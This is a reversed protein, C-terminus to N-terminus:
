FKGLPEAYQEKNNEYRFLETKQSLIVACKNVVSVQKLGKPKGSRRKREKM